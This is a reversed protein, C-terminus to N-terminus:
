RPDRAALASVREPLEQPVDTPVPLWDDADPLIRSGVADYLELLRAGPCHRRVIDALTRKEERSMAQGLVAVHFKHKKCAAEAAPIGLASTVKHGAAELMMRRTKLLTPDVGTCLVRAV